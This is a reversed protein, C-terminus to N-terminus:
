TINKRNKIANAVGIAGLTDPDKNHELVTTSIKRVLPALEYALRESDGWSDGDLMIVMEDPDLQVLLRKQKNTIVKGLLGCGLGEGVRISDFAGETVVIMKQRHKLYDYGFILDKSAISSKNNPCNKYKEKAKDTIDRGLFNVLENKIYIPFILRLGYHGTMCAKIDWAMLEEITFNRNKIYALFLSDVNLQNNLKNLSKCFSPLSLSTKKEKGDVLQIAEPNIIKEIEERIDNEQNIHSPLSYESTKELVQRVAFRRTCNELLRILDVLNGKIGCKWCNFVKDQNIGFHYGNDDCDPNPCCLGINGKTINKGTEKFDIDLSCLYSILDFQRIKEIFSM